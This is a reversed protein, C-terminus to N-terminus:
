KIEVGEKRLEERWLKKVKESCHAMADEWTPSRGYENKFTMQYFLSDRNHPNEPKHDTACVQCLGPKPPLFGSEDRRGKLKKRM